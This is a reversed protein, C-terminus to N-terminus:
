AQLESPLNCKGTIDDEGQGSLYYSVPRSKVKKVAIGIQGYGRSGNGGIYDDQLMKLSQWVYKLTNDRNEGEFVNIVMNLRFEAGAPVRENTRPNAASTIRDIVVETKAETYLLEASKLDDENTLDGDRVIIRSPRQHEDGRATGFIKAAESRSPDDSGVTNVGKGQNKDMVWGNAIELLSRMKGKLSSGPIYPKQTVPNRVVTKDVGGISMSSNTGGIHIGTRAKIIGEILIKESLKKHSM